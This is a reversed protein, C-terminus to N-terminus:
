FARVARVNFAFNKIGRIQIGDDFHQLWAYEYNHETSSWYYDLTSTSFDSGGNASATTNITAKNTYMQNLEDKSPLFWDTFGGGNYARALGAAYSTEAAGQVAIIADTNASGTGLATATAGTAVSSGNYWRIGSSQDQIAAIL